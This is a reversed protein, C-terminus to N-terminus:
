KFNCPRSVRIVHVATLMPQAEQTYRSGSSDCEFVPISSNFGFGDGCICLKDRLYQWEDGSDSGYIVQEERCNRLRSTQAVTILFQMGSAVIRSTDDALRLSATQQSLLAGHFRRLKARVWVSRSRASSRAISYMQHAQLRLGRSRSRRSRSRSVAAM